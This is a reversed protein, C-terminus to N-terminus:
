ETTARTKVSLRYTMGRQSVVDILFVSSLWDLWSLVCVCLDVKNDKSLFYNHQKRSFTSSTLPLLCPNKKM